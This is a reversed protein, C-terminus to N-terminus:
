RRDRHIQSNQVTGVSLSVTGIIKNSAGKVQMINELNMWTMAPTLVEKKIVLFIGSYPYVVKQKEMWRHANSSNRKKDIIFLAAIFM